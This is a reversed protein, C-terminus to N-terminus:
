IKIKKEKNKSFVAAMNQIYDKEKINAFRTPDKSLDALVRKTATGFIDKLRAKFPFMQTEKTTEFRVLYEFFSLREKGPDYKALLKLDKESYTEPLFEYETFQPIVDTILLRMRTLIKQFELSKEMGSSFISVYGVSGPTDKLAKIGTNVFLTFPTRSPTPDALFIDFRNIYERPIGQTFDCSVIELKKLSFARKQKILFDILRQDIDFVVVRRALDTFAIALSTLDDDGLVVVNKNQLDGYQILYAVRNLTTNLTVPRQDFIFTPKPRAKYIDKMAQIVMKLRNAIVVRKGKCTPCLFSHAPMYINQISNLTFHDNKFNILRAKVMQNLLRLVRRDSGGVFRILDWLTTPGSIKLYGLIRKALFKYLKLESPNEIVHAFSIKAM